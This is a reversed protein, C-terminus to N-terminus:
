VQSAITPSVTTYWHPEGDTYTIQEGNGAVTLTTRIATIPEVLRYPVLVPETVTWEMPASKAAVFPAVFAGAILGFFGRRKM